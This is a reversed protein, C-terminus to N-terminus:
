KGLPHDKKWEGQKASVERSGADGEAEREGEPPAEGVLHGRQRMGQGCPNPTGERAGRPQSQTPHSTETAQQKSSRHASKPRLGVRGTQLMEGQQQREEHLRQERLM